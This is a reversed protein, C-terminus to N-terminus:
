TQAIVRESVGTEMHLHLMAVRLLSTIFVNRVLITLLVGFVKCWNANTAEYDLSSGSTRFRYGKASGSLDFNGAVHLEQRPTSTGVGVRGANTIRMREALAADGNRTSFTLNSNSGNGETFDAGIDAISVGVATDAVRVRIANGNGSTDYGFLLTDYTSGTVDSSRITLLSSPSTTGIGVKGGFYNKSNAGPSYINASYNSGVSSQDSIYLGYNNEFTGSNSAGAIYVGYGNQITGAGNNDIAAYVATAQQVTGGGDNDVEGQV